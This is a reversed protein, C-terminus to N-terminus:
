LRDDPCASGPEDTVMRKWCREHDDVAVPGAVHREVGVSRMQLSGRFSRELEGWRIGLARDPPVVVTRM